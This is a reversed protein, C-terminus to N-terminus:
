VFHSVCPKHLWFDILRIVTFTLFIACWRLTFREYPSAEWISASSVFVDDADSILKRAAKSLKPDDTVVWLYIHTDLLLRM